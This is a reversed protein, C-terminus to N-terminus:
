PISANNRICCQSPPAEWNYIYSNRKKYEKLCLMGKSQITKFLQVMDETNHKHTVLYSNSCGRSVYETDFRPDHRREIGSVSALWVGVSVDESQFLRLQHANTAIFNVLPESLVYGGGLAYPLYYDCLIWNSEKWKGRKKVQARGNFFGWYLKHSKNQIHYHKLETSLDKIQIFSDDDCKLVFNYTFNSNDLWVFTELIKKSLNHYADIVNPLVILDNNLHQEQKISVFTEKSLNLSGIVFYHKINHVNEILKLWSDRIAQRQKINTPGDDYIGCRTLITVKVNSTPILVEDKELTLGPAPVTPGPSTAQNGGFQTEIALFREDKTNRMSQTLEYDSAHRTVLFELGIETFSSIIEGFTLVNYRTKFHFNIIVNGSPIEKTFSEWCESNFQRRLFYMTQSRPMCSFGPYVCKQNSSVVAGSGAKQTNYTKCHTEMYHAPQYEHEGDHLHVTKTTTECLPRFDVTTERGRKDLSSFLEDGYDAEVQEDLMYPLMYAPLNSSISREKRLNNTFYLSLGPRSLYTEGWPYCKCDGAETAAHDLANSECYFLSGIIPLDHNSDQNPTSLSTQTNNQSIHRLFDVQAGTIMAAVALLTLSILLVQLM